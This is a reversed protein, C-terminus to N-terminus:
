YTIVKESFICQLVFSEEKKKHDYIISKTLPKANFKTQTKLKGLIHQCQRTQVINFLGHFSSVRVYSYFHVRSDPALHFKLQM